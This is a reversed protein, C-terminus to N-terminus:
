DLCQGAAARNITGQGIDCDRVGTLQDEIIYGGITKLSMGTERVLKVGHDVETSANEILTKIEQRSKQLANPSNM